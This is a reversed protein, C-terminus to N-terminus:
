NSLKILDKKKKRTILEFIYKKMLYENKNQNVKIEKIIKDLKNKHMTLQNKLLQYKDKSKKDSFNEEFCEDLNEICFILRDIKAERNWLDIKSISEKINKLWRKKNLHIKKKNFSKKLKMKNGNSKNNSLQKETPINSSINNKSTYYQTKNKLYSRSNTYNTSSIEYSSYKYNKSDKSNCLCQLNSLYKVKNTNKLKIKTETKCRLSLLKEKKHNNRNNNNKNNNNRSYNKNFSSTKNRKENFRNNRNLKKNSKYNKNTYSILSEYRNNESNILYNIKENTINHFRLMIPLDQFNKNISYSYKFGHKKLSTTFPVSDIKSKNNRMQTKKLKSKKLLNILINQDFKLKSYYLVNSKQPIIQKLNAMNASLIRKKNIKDKEEKKLYMETKEM